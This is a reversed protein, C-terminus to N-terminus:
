VTMPRPRITKHPVGQVLHSPTEVSRKSWFGFRARNDNPSVAGSTIRPAIRTTINLASAQVQATCRRRPPMPESAGTSFVAM